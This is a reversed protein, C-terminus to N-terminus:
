YEARSRNILAEMNQGSNNSVGFFYFDLSQIGFYIKTQSYVLCTIDHIM